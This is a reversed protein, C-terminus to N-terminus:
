AKPSSGSQPRNLPRRERRTFAAGSGTPSNASSSLGKQKPLTAVFTLDFGDPFPARQELCDVVGLPYLAWRPLTMSDPSPGRGAPQTEVEFPDDLSRESGKPLEAQETLSGGFPM